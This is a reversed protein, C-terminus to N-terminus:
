QRTIKTLGTGMMEMPAYVDLGVPHLPFGDIGDAVAVHTPHRHTEIAEAIGHIHCMWLAIGTHITM